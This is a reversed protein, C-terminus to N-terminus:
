TDIADDNYYDWQRSFYMPWCNWCSWRGCCTNWWSNYCSYGRSCYCDYGSTYSYDACTDFSHYRYNWTQRVIHNPRYFAIRNNYDYDWNAYSSRGLWDGGSLSGQSYGIVTGDSAQYCRGWSYSTLWNNAMATYCSYGAALVSVSVLQLLLILKLSVAGRNEFRMHIIFLHCLLYYFDMGVMHMM